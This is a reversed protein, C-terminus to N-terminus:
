PKQHGAMKELGKQSRRGNNHPQDKKSPNQALEEGVAGRVKDSNKPQRILFM